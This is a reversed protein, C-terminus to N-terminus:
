ATAEALTERWPQPPLGRYKRLANQATHLALLACKLRRPGVDVGLLDLMSSAPLALLDQEPMDSLADALLSMAAQSIACGEGNWGIDAIKGGELRLQVTVVDGCSANVEAHEVHPSALPAKRHPHRYHDLVNEAYLNM